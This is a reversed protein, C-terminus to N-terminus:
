YKKVIKQYKILSQTHIHHPITTAPPAQMDILSQAEVLVYVTHQLWETIFEFVM